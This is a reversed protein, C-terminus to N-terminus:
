GHMSRDGESLAREADAEGQELLYEIREPAWDMLWLSAREDPHPERRIRTLRVQPHSALAREAEEDSRAGLFMRRFHDLNGGLGVPSQRTRKFLEMTVVHYRQAEQTEQTLRDLTPMLLGQHWVDGDWYARGAHWAPKFLLPIASSAGIMTPVITEQGSDFWAPTAEEIDIARVLLRPGDQAQSRYETAFESVTRPLTSNDYGAMHPYAFLGGMAGGPVGYFISPNGFTLGTLSANLRQFYPVPLPHFPVTPMAVSRWFRELMKVGLDPKRHHAAIIFGNVAGISAGVIIMSRLAGPDLRRALARYAGCQYAGLAGGGNLVLLIREDM